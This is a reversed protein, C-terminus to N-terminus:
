YRVQSKINPSSTFYQNWIERESNSPLYLIPLTGDELIRVGQYDPKETVNWNDGKPRSKHTVFVPVERWFLSKM